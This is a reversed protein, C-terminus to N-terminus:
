SVLAELEVISYDKYRLYTQETARSDHSKGILGAASKYNGVKSIITRATLGTVRAMERALESQRGYPFSEAQLRKLIILCRIENQDNWLSGSQYSM